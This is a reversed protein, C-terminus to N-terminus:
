AGEKWLHEFQTFALSEGYNSINDRVNLILCRDSGGNLKGRLGRGIMQQYVNPSYTPRAVVVARTAPADFGQTLVGYNTLVRLRGSRFASIRNNRETASTASDVAAAGVGADNLKAALFKAHSVSTAFVLVPWDKPMALIEDMIRRNRGHDDALRQEAGKALVRMKEAHQKEEQSLEITGGALVRHDVHALMGLSQLEAYPETEFVGDDLRRGGFRTILRHTETENNGRFPTATLGLLHRDTRYQTLGLSELIGTYEKTTAVHAEDVIVLAANRLWAYSDTNLCVGLKADTAVVLHPDDGSVPGAENSSWLRSITLPRQAGVKEWVFKWSQVAQECLEISQAIWLIPGELVGETKIWRIVAEATVRTKGAGTPLSLMGRQPTLRALMDFVNAALREQYGHLLPFERPGEVEIRPAPSPTRAGAFTDPFGLDSVFKVATSAGTFSSPANPIRAQIDRAHVQLVGDDHSNYAMEGLREASPEGREARESDLLGAPLREKLAEAGILLSLKLAITDASRIAKITRQLEQDKEQREQAELLARCGVEGLGLKLEKDVTTLTALRKSELEATVLVTNGRVVSHLAIGNSGKPTKTVEELESCYQIEYNNVASGFRQRLTPYADRLAIPEGAPVHRVERSIVDSFSLMGWKETLLEADEASGALLAPLREARLERYEAESAAVAIEGDDRTEWADGVRCRTLGEPFPLDLRTMLVYTSGVFSDDDSALLQEGLKTWLNEPVLDVKDPLGLKRAKEESIDAVPLVDAYASLQPGVAEAPRRPGQSTPVTGYKRILWRAPSPIAERSGSATGIQRIWRDVILRDPIAKLYAARGEDSLRLLLHLSDPVPSGETRMRGITPRSRTGLTRCYAEYVATRYEEYWSDQIDQTERTPVAFLGLDRFVAVDDSHFTMDVAVSADRSGDEPVIPGPRLCQRVPHFEGDLTLVHLTEQLNPYRSRIEGLAHHGGARRFLEWFLRWDRDRYRAFGQDLVGAFRGRSDAERVGIINLAHRLTPDETLSPHAYVLDDKLGDAQDRQWVRGAEPAVLDGSETMVIRARRASEAFPSNTGIMDALIRVAVASAEPRRDSVLAELWEVVSARQRGAAALIHQVKGSRTDNAEVSPHVWNRPRGPYSHWMALWKPSLGKGARRGEDPHVEVDKPVRLKGDQDPLSPLEATLEWIRRTLIEDAWSLTEVAKLRGPLFSLYAGPDAVPALQPLSEVVLRAAVQLLEQNFASKDLLNQRDENTKWAGNLVGSLTMEYNTPFFAWFRGRGSAPNAYPAAGAYEPVAWSIDITARDHLEGAAGRAQDGPSHAVTFVKWKESSSTRGTGTEHIVRRVGNQEVTIVRRVIPMARRDELVVKGVHSSFLQFLKPFEQRGQTGKPNHIDGALRAAAGPLLPLRVVTVAWGRLEDLVPDLRRERAEDLPRAMRLVPAEFDSDPEFGAAGAIETRSWVRDFGFAGTTSFFQPADSVVLYSKVGVGFRGIQGGRKRSVGMRLITEAGASTVPTGVNACYLHDQTLVVHITGGPENAVEDAANQVIEYLQRDGYGGQTIRRESNAHEQVLGPDVRYTELTRRSQDNVVNLVDASNPETAAHAM